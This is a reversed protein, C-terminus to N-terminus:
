AAAEESTAATTAEADLADRLEKQKALKDDLKKRKEAARALRKEEAQKRKEEHHEDLMYRANAFVSCTLSVAGKLNRASHAWKTKAEAWNARAAASRKHARYSREARTAQELKASAARRQTVLVMETGSTGPRKLDSKEGDAPATAATAPKKSWFSMSPKKNDARTSSNETSHAGPPPPVPKSLRPNKTKAVPRSSSM